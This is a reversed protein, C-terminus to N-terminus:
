HVKFTSHIPNVSKLLTSYNYIRFSLNYPYYFGPHWLPSFEVARKLCGPNCHLDEDINVIRVTFNFVAALELFAPEGFAVLELDRRNKRADIPVLVFVTDQPFTNRVALLLRAQDAHFNKRLPKLVKIIDAYTMGIVNLNLTASHVVIYSGPHAKTRMLIVVADSSVKTSKYEIVLYNAPM